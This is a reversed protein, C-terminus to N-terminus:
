KELEAMEEANPMRHNKNFFDAVKKATDYSSYTYESGDCSLTVKGAKVEVRAYKGWGAATAPEDGNNEISDRSVGPQYKYTKDGIQIHDRLGLEKIWFNQRRQSQSIGHWEKVIGIAAYLDDKDTIGYKKRIIDGLNKTGVKFKEVPEDSHSIDSATATCVDEDDDDDDAVIDSNPPVTVDDENDDDDGAVPTKTLNRGEVNKEAELGRLIGYKSDNDDYTNNWDNLGYNVMGFIATPVGAKAINGVDIKNKATVKEDVKKEDNYEVEGEVLIDDEINVPGELTVDAKWHVVGNVDREYHYPIKGQGTVIEDVHVTGSGSYEYPLSYDHSYDVTVNQPTRMESQLIGNNYVQSTNYVTANQSGTFTGDLVGSGSYTYGHDGQYRLSVDGEAIGDGSIHQSYAQDGEVQGSLSVNHQKSYHVTKSYAVSGTFKILDTFRGNAIKTTSYFEALATMGAGAVWGKVGALGLGGWRKGVSQDGEIDLGAGEYLQKAFGRQRLNIQDLNAVEVEDILDKRDALQVYFDAKHESDKKYENDLRNTNAMGVMYDKYMDSSFHYGEGNFTYDVSEGPQAPKGFKDGNLEIFERAEKENKGSFPFTHNKGDKKNIGKKDDNNWHVVTNEVRNQTVMKDVHAEAMARAMEDINIDALNDKSKGAAKDLEKLRKENLKDIENHVDAGFMNDYSENFEKLKDMRDQVLMDAIAKKDPDLSADLDAKSKKELEAFEKKIQEAKNDDGEMIAQHLEGQLREKATKFNARVQASQPTEAEAMLRTIENQRKIDEQTFERKKARMEATEAKAKVNSIKEDYEANVKNMKSFIENDVIDRAIMKLRDPGVKFSMMAELEALERIQAETMQEGNGIVPNKHLNKTYTNNYQKAATQRNIYQGQDNKANYFEINAKIRAELLDTEDKTAHGEAFYKTNILLPNSQQLKQLNQAQQMIKTHRNLRIYDNVLEDQNAQYRAKFYDKWGDVTAERVTKDAAVDAPSVKPKLAELEDQTEVSTGKRETTKPATGCLSAIIQQMTMHKQLEKVQETKNSLFSKVKDPVANWQDTTLGYSQYNFDACMITREAGKVIQM